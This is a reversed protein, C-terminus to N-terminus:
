PLSIEPLLISDKGDKKLLFAFPISAIWRTFCYNEEKTIIEYEDHDPLSLINNQIKFTLENNNKNINPFVIWTIKEKKNYFILNFLTTQEIPVLEQASLINCFRYFNG